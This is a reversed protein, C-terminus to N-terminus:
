YNIKMTETIKTHIFPIIQSYITIIIELGVYRKKKVNLRITKEHLIEVLKANLACLLKEDLRNIIM